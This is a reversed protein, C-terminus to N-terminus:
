VYKIALLILLLYVFSYTCVRNMTGPRAVLEALKSEAM